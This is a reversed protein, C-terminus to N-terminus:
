KLQIYRNNSLHLKITDGIGYVYSGTTYNFRIAYYYRYKLRIINNKEDFIVDSSREEHFLYQNYYRNHQFCEVGEPVHLYFWGTHFEYNLKSKM